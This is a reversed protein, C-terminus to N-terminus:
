FKAAAAPDGWAIFPGNRFGAKGYTFPAGDCDAVLGGAARLVADGAATDWEMTTNFRPYVDAEAEAIWCFKLSSGATRLYADGLRKAFALSQADQHSLSALMVRGADPMARVHLARENGATLGKAAAAGPGQSKWAYAHPGGGGYGAWLEDKVPAYVVGAIPWGNHILAINVTFEGSGRLFERTGDLPDVLIFTGGVEPPRTRAAAEESVVPIDGALRALHALIITEAREDAECVPSNDAKIRGAPHAEFVPITAQGAEVAIDCFARTLERLRDPHSFDPLQGANSSQVM